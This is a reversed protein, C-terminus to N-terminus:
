HINLIFLQVKKKGISLENYGKPIEQFKNWKPNKRIQSKSPFFELKVLLDWMTFDAPIRILNPPNEEAFFLLIDSELFLENEVIINYEQNM